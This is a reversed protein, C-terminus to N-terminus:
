APTRALLTKELVVKAGRYPAEIPRREGTETFGMRRWFVFAADNNDIVAIRLTDVGPWTQAMAEIAEVANQGLGRGRSAPTLLLLGIIAKHPANWGRVVEAIGKIRDDAYFGVTFKDAAHMGPPLSTFFDDIHWATPAVGEVLLNYDAAAM